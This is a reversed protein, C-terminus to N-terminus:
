SCSHFGAYLVRYSGIPHDRGGGDERWERPAARICDVDYIVDVYVTHHSLRFLLVGQTSHPHRINPSVEQGQDLPKGQKLVELHLRTGHVM